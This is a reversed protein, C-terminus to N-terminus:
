HPTRWPMAGLNATVVPLKLIEQELLKIRVLRQELGHFLSNALASVSLLIYKDLVNVSWESFQVYNDDDRGTVYSIRSFWSPLSVVIEEHVPSWFSCVHNHQIWCISLGFMYYAGMLYDFFGRESICWVLSVRRTLLCICILRWTQTQSLQTHTRTHTNCCTRKVWNM